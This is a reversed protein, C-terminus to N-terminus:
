FPIKKRQIKKSRNALFEEEKKTKRVKRAAPNEEETERRKGISTGKIKQFWHLWRSGSALTQVALFKKKGIISASLALAIAEFGVAARGPFAFEHPSPQGLRLVLIIEPIGPIGLSDAVPLLLM